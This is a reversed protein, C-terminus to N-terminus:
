AIRIAGGRLVSSGTINAGNPQSQLKIVTSDSTVVVHATNMMQLSNGSSDMSLGSDYHGGILSITAAGSTVTLQHLNRMGSIGPVGTGTVSLFYVGKNLTIGQTAGGVNQYGSGSTLTTSVGLSWDIKEGVYGTPVATGSIDGVINRASVPFGVAAGGSIKRVRWYLGAATGAWVDIVGTRYRGFFVSVTSTTTDIGIGIFNSGDYRFNDVVAGAVAGGPQRWNIRDDSIELLITDTSIIPSRFQVRRSIFATIAGIQAGQPGYGFSTTDSTTTSTSTNFAYEEVARDALTTTGSSWQSVPVSAFIEVYNNQGLDSERVRIQGSAQTLLLGSTSTSSEFSVSFKSNQVLNTSNIYLTSVGCINLIASDSVSSTDVNLGSPLGIVLVSTSPSATTTQFRGNIEVNQGVRRYKFSINAGGVLNVFTPTYSQWATVVAGQALSQPGVTLSDIRVQTSGTRRRLRLAYVDTATSSPIFFGKFQTTGTPLQAGPTGTMSSATGAVSILEAFTGTTGSVTYRAVVLDWDDATTVGSLDFSITVPKGLDSGDINFAATQVFRAGSASAGSLATLYNASGRLLTSTSAAIAAAGSTSDAYWASTVATASGSVVINGNAAVTSVTGVPKTADYWDSLYNVGGTGAGSGISAEAGTSDMKYLKNDAKAYVRVTGAAATAPTSTQNFVSFTNFVPAALTKNSLTEATDLDAPVKWATGNYYVVKGLDSDYVKMGSTPSALATRQATTLVREQMAANHVVLVYGSFPGGSAPATVDIKTKEFGTTAAVTFTQAQTLNPYTGTYVVVKLDDLSVGFGHTVTTTASNALDTFDVWRGIDQDSFLQYINDISTWLSSGGATNLAPHSIGSRNNGM